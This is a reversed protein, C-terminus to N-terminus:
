PDSPDGKRARQLHSGADGDRGDREVGVAAVRRAAFVEDGRDKRAPFTMARVEAARREDRAPRAPDIGGVEGRSADAEGERVRIEFPSDTVAEGSVTRFEVKHGGLRVRGQAIGVQAIDDGVQARQGRDVPRCGRALDAVQPAHHHDGVRQRGRGVVDVM